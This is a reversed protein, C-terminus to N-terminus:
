TGGTSFCQELNINSSKQLYSITCVNKQNTSEFTCLRLSMKYMSHTHTHTDTHLFKKHTTSFFYKRNNIKRKVDKNNNNTNIYILFKM